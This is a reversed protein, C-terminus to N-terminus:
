KGGGKAKEVANRLEGFACKPCDVMYGCGYNKHCNNDLLKEAAALLATQQVPQNWDAIVEKYDWHYMTRLGCGLCRAFYYCDSPIIGAVSQEVRDCGCRICPNLKTESM